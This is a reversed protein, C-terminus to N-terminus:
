AVISACSSRTPWDSCRSRRPSARWTRVGGLPTFEHQSFAAFAASAVIPTDTGRRSRRSGLRSISRGASAPSTSVAPRRRYKRVDGEGVHLALGFRIHTGDPLSRPAELADIQTRAERAGLLAGRCVAIAKEEDMPLPFIALLGDGIFKLVEGGHRFIAPVQCDFYRNLLGILEQPPLQEAMMTFGRM